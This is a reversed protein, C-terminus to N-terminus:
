CPAPSCCSSDRFALKPTRTDGAARELVRAFWQASAAPASALASRAARALRVRAETDGPRLSHQLHQAHLVIPADLPGPARRRAPARPHALRTRVTRVRRRAAAPPHVPLPRAPPSCARPRDAHGPQRAGPGGATARRGRGPRRRGRRRRGRGRARRPEARRRARVPRGPHDRGLLNDVAEDLLPAASGLAPRAACPLEALLRLYLPNGASAETLLRRSSARLGPLLVDVETQAAAARARAHDHEELARLARTLRPPCMGTRYSLVVAPWVPRRGTCCSSWCASRRRTPGSSTTSCSCCATRRTSNTSRRASAATSGSSNPGPRARGTAEPARGM